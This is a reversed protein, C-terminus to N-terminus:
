LIRKATYYLEDKIKKNNYFSIIKKILETDEKNYARSLFHKLALYARTKNKPYFNIFFDIAEIDRESESWIYTLYEISDKKKPHKLACEQLTNLALNTYNGEYFTNAMQYQFRYQEEKSLKIAGSIIYSYISAAESYQNLNKLLDAQIELLSISKPIEALGQEIFSLAQEYDSLDYYMFAMAQYIDENENEIDCAKQYFKEAQTYLEIKKYTDAILMLTEVNEPDKKSYSLFTELAKKYEENLYYIKGLNLYSDKFDPALVVVKQYAQVASASKGMRYYLNGMNFYVIAKSDNGKLARKYIFLAKEYEGKLSASRAVDLLSSAYLKSMLFSIILLYIYISKM